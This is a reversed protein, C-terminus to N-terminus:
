KREEAQERLRAAEEALERSSVLGAATGDTM